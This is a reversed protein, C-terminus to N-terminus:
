GHIKAKGIYALIEQELKIVKDFQRQYEALYEHSSKRSKRIGFIIQDNEQMLDRLTHKLHEMQKYLKETKPVCHYSGLQHSLSMLYRQQRELYHIHPIAVKENKLPSSSGKIEM